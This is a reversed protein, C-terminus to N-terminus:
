SENGGDDFAGRLQAHTRSGRRSTRRRVTARRRSRLYRPSSRPADLLPPQQTSRSPFRRRQRHPVPSRSRLSRWARLLCSRMRSAAPCPTSSYRACPALARRTCRCRHSRLASGRAPMLRIRRTSACRASRACSRAAPTAAPRPCPTQRTDEHARSCASSRSRVAAAVIPRRVLRPQRRLKPFLGDQQAHRARDSKAEHSGRRTKPEVPFVRGITSRIM